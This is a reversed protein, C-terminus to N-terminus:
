VGVWLRSVTGLTVLSLASGRCAMHQEAQYLSTSVHVQLEEPHCSLWMQHRKQTACLLTGPGLFELGLCVRSCHPSRPAPATNETARQPGGPTSRKLPGEQGDGEGRQEPSHKQGKAAEPGERPIFTVLALLTAELGGILGWAVEEFPRPRQRLSDVEKGPGSQRKM